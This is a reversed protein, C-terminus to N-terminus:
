KKDLINLPIQHFHGQEKTPVLMGGGSSKWIPVLISYATEPIVKLEKAFPITSVLIVRKLIKYSNRSKLSDPPTESASLM